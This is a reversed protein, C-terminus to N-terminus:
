FSGRISGNDVVKGKRGSVRPLRGVMIFQCHSKLLQLHTRTLTWPLCVQLSRSSLNLNELTIYHFQDLPFHLAVVQRTLSPFCPLAPPQLIKKLEATQRPLAFSTSPM